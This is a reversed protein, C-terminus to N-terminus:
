WPNKHENSLHKCSHGSRKDQGVQHPWTGKARSSSLVSSSMICSESCTSKPMAALCSLKCTAYDAAIGLVTHHIDEALRSQRWAALRLPVVQKSKGPAKRPLLPRRGLKVRSRQWRSTGSALRHKCLNIQSEHLPPHPSPEKTSSERCIGLNGIVCPKSLTTMISQRNM